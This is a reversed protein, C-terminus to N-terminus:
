YRNAQHTTNPCKGMLVVDARRLVLRSSTRPHKPTRPMCFFWTARRAASSRYGARVRYRERLKHRGRVARNALLGGRPQLTGVQLRSRSADAREFMWPPSGRESHVPKSSLFIDPILRGKQDTFDAKDLM